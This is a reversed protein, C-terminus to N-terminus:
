FFIWATCSVTMEIKAPVVGQRITGPLGLLASLSYAHDCTKDDFKSLTGEDLIGDAEIVLEEEIQEQWWNDKSRTVLEM